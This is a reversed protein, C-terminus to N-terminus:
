NILYNVLLNTLLTSLCLVGLVKNNTRLSMKAIERYSSMANMYQMLDIALQLPEELNRGILEKNHDMLGEKIIISRRWM